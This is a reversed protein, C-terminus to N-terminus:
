FDEPYVFIGTTDDDNSSGCLDWCFICPYKLPKATIDLCERYKNTRYVECEESSNEDICCSQSGYRRYVHGLNNAECYDFYEEDSHLLVKEM